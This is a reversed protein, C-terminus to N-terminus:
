TGQWLTDSENKLRMAHYEAGADIMSDIDQVQEASDCDGSAHM